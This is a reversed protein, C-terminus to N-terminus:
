RKKSIYSKVSGLKSNVQGLRATVEKKVESVLTKDPINKGLRTAVLTFQPGHPHATLSDQGITIETLGFNRLCNLIDDKSLWHSFPASGGCFGTWNLAAEYEYRYLTHKFGEYEGPQSSPFKHAIVPNDLVGADYYHTWLFLRDSSKAALALLEVPNQMHYLVGSAFCLDYKTRSHRLYEMFDGCLFSARKMELLEKVILCKLYARTNAEVAVISSAGAQELMYTHGGELPGLELVKQGKIGGLTDVVWKVRDDEFLTAPGDGVIGLKGPLKSPWEGKFLDIANQVGPGTSVYQDLISM